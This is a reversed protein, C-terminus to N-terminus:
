PSVKLARTAATSAIKASRMGRSFRPVMEATYPPACTMPPVKPEITEERNMEVGLVPINM